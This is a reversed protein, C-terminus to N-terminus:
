AKFFPGACFALLRPALHSLRHTAAMCERLGLVSRHFAQELFSDGKKLLWEISGFSYDFEIM